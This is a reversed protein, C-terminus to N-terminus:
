NHNSQIRSRLPRVTRSEGFLDIAGAQLIDCLM